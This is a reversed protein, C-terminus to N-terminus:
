PHARGFVFWMAGASALAVFGIAYATDPEIGLSRMHADLTENTAMVGFAYASALLAISLIAKRWTM